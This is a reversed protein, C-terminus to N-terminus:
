RRLETATYSSTTAAGSSNQVFHKVDSGAEITLTAGPAVQFDKDTSSITPAADEVGVERIWLYYTADCNHFRVASRNGGQIRNSLAESAANGACTTAQRALLNPPNSGPTPTGVGVRQIPGTTPGGTLGAYKPQATM